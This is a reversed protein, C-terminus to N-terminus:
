PKKALTELLPLFKILAIVIGTLFAISQLVLAGGVFRSWYQISSIVREHNRVQERLPLEGNGKILIKDHLEFGEQLTNVATNLTIVNMAVKQEGTLQTELATM